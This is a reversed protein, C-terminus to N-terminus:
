SNVSKKERNLLCWVIFTKEGEDEWKETRHVSKKDMVVDIEESNM